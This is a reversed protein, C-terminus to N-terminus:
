VLELAVWRYALYRIARRGLIHISLRVTLLRAAIQACRSIVVAKASLMFRANRLARTELHDVSVEAMQTVM